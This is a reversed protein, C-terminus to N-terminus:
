TLSNTFSQWATARDEYEVRPAFWDPHSETVIDKYVRAFVNSTEFLEDGTGGHRAPAQPRLGRDEPVPVEVHHVAARGRGLDM